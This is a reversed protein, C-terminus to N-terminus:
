TYVETTCGDVEKRAKGKRKKEFEEKSEYTVGEEPISDPDEPPEKTPGKEVHTTERANKWVM